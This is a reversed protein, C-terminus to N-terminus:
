IEEMQVFCTIETKATINQNKSILAKLFPINELGPITNLHSENTKLAISYLEKFGDFDIYRSSKGFPGSISKGTFSTFSTQYNLLSNNLKTSLKGKIKLGVFKWETSEGDKTTNVFPFDGGLKLSFQNDMTIIIEPNAILQATHNMRSFIINDSQINLSNNSVFRSLESKFQDIGFTNMDNSIKNIKFIKFVLKYSKLPDFKQIPVFKAFFQNRMDDWNIQSKKFQSYKCIIDLGSQDCNISDIDYKYVELYISSIIENKLKQSLKVNIQLLNKNKEKSLRHLLQYTSLKMVTGSVFLYKGKVLANLNTDRLSQAMEMLSLQNKKSTVYIHFIQKQKSSKWVVIDSFGISKGKILLHGQKARYKYKIVEKNGVAFHNIKGTELEIQEGKAIFVDRKVHKYANVSAYLPSIIIFIKVLLIYLSLYLARCNYNFLRILSLSIAEFVINVFHLLFKFLFFAPALLFCALSFLPVVGLNAIWGSLFYNTKKM